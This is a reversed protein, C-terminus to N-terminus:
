LVRGVKFIIVTQTYLWCYCCPFRGFNVNFSGMKKQLLGSPRSLYIREPDRTLIEPWFDYFNAAFFLNQIECRLIKFSYWSRRRAMDKSLLSPYRDNGWAELFVWVWNWRCVNEPKRISKIISIDEPTVRNIQNTNEWRFYRPNFSNWRWCVRYLGLRM